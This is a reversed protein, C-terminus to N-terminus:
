DLRSKGDGHTRRREGEEGMCQKQGRNRSLFCICGIQQANKGLGGGTRLRIM